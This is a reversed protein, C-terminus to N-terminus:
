SSFAAVWLASSPFVVLAGASLAVGYPVGNNPDHLRNLWIMRLAAVPLPIQRLALIMLTLAGGFVASILLYELLHDLGMWFSTAAVLKVDGGGVWGAAFLGLGVTLVLLGVGFHMAMESFGIGLLLASVAFSAILALSIRNPITMTLLDYVAAFIMLSPVSIAILLQATQLM